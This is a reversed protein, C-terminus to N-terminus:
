CVGDLLDNSSTELLYVEDEVVGSMQTSALALPYKGHGDKVMLNAGQRLLVKVTVCTRAMGDFDGLREKASGAAIAYHLPTKGHIDPANINAGRSAMTNILRAQDSLAALHLANQQQKNVMEFVGPHPALRILNSAQHFDNRSLAHHLDAACSQADVAPVQVAPTQTKPLSALSSKAAYISTDSDFPRSQQAPQAFPSQTRAALGGWLSALRHPRSPAVAQPTRTQYGPSPMVECSAREAFRMSEFEALLRIRSQEM